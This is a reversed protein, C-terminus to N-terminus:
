ILEKALEFHKVVDPYKRHKTEGGRCLYSPHYTPVVKITNYEYIKGVVKGLMLNAQIGLLNFSADKGLSLIVKPKTLGIQLILYPLCSDIWEQELKLGAKLYCKVLNTIYVDDLTLGADQLITDLLKGARGVFPLGVKNEEDAPVMGCIMIRAEPNGKDFVPTVRGNHLDCGTCVAAETRLEELTLNSRAIAGM